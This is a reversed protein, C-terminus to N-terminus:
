NSLQKEEWPMPMYSSLVFEPLMKFSKKNGDNQVLEPFIGKAENIIKYIFLPLCGRPSLSKIDVSIGM